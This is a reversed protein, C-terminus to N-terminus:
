RRLPALDGITLSGDDEQCAIMHIGNALYAEQAAQQHAKLAPLGPCDAFVSYRTMSLGGLLFPALQWAGPQPATRLMQLRCRTVGSAAFAEPLLTAFDDGACLIIHGADIEFTDTQVTQGSIARVETGFHFVVGHERQLWAAMKAMAQRQDVKWADPSWIGGLLGDALPVGARRELDAQTIREFAHGQSGACEELVQMEEPVRAAFLCGARRMSIGAGAAIKQWDALARQASQLEAGPKQAVIALMGFNRVSAGNATDSRELVAVTLGAQAAHYAHALGMVGAGIIVLDYQQM